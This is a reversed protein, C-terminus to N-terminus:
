RGLFNNLSKLLGDYKSDKIYYYLKTYTWSAFLLIKYSEKM